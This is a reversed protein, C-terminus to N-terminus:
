PMIGQVKMKKWKLERMILLNQVKLTVDVRIKM